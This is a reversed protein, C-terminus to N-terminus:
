KGWYRVILRRLDATRNLWGKLFVALSPKTSALRRYFAERKELMVQATAADCAAVAQGAGITKSGMIGDVKIPLMGMATRKENIAQQLQLVARWAGMNVASDYLATAMAPPLEDCRLADWFHGKFLLAAQQKTCARIDDADIDGDGDIDGELLGLSILWRLSVGYNTLGGPDSKHDSFGGEWKAVFNHAISFVDDDIM